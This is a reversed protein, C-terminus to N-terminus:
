RLINAIRLESNESSIVNIQFDLQTEFIGDPKVLLGNNITALNSGFTLYINNLSINQIIILLRKEQNAIVKSTNTAIFSYNNCSKILQRDWSIILGLITDLKNNIM